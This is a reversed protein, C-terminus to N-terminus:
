LLMSPNYFQVYSYFVDQKKGADKSILQWLLPEALQKLDLTKLKIDRTLYEQIATYDSM